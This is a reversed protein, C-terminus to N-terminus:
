GCRNAPANHEEIRKNHRERWACQRAGASRLGAGQAKQVSCKAKGTRQCEVEQMERQQDRLRLGMAVGWPM